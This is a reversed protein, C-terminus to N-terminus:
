PFGSISVYEITIKQLWHLAGKVQLFGDQSEHARFSNMTNNHGAEVPTGKNSWSSQIRFFGSGSDSKGGVGRYGLLSATGSASCIAGLATPYLVLQLIVLHRHPVAQWAFRAWCGYCLAAIRCRESACAVSAIPLPPVRLNHM